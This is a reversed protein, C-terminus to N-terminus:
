KSNERILWWNRLSVSGSVLWKCLLYTLILFQILCSCMTALLCLRWFPALHPHNFFAPHIKLKSNGFFTEFYCSKHIDYLHPIILNTSHYFFYISWSAAIYSDVIINTVNKKIKEALLICFSDGGFVYCKFVNRLLCPPGIPVWGMLIHVYMYRLKCEGDFHCICM